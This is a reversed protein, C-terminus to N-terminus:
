LREPKTTAVPSREALIADIQTKLEDCSELTGPMLFQGRKTKVVFGEPLYPPSLSLGTVDDWSMETTGFLTKLLLTQPSTEVYTPMLIVVFARWLFIGTLVAAFVCVLIRDPISGPKLFLSTFLFYWVFIAFSLGLCSQILQFIMGTVSNRFSRTASTSVAELGGPIHSRIEQILQDCHALWIPFNLEQGTNTSISYRVQNLLTRRKLSELDQWKCFPRKFLSIATIGEDTTIVSWTIFGYFPTLICGIVCVVLPVLKAFWPLANFYGCSYGILPFIACFLVAIAEATIRIAVVPKLKYVTRMQQM